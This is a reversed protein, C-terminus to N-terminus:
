SLAEVAAKLASVAQELPLSPVGEGAQQPLYPIHLFGIPIDADRFRHLLTYLLDNCVYGGASLSRKAPIGAAEIAEVMATVPITSFYAAPAQPIVPEERCLIGANDPLAACRLNIAVTEPTVADRRGAQGICLIGQAQIRRVEAEALAAAQGYVVPLCLKHLKWPGIAGPLLKVAEWSPNITEGGFPEFGTVLLIKHTM